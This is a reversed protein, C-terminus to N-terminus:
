MEMKLSNKIKIKSDMQYKTLVFRINFKLDFTLGILNIIEFFEIIKTITKILTQM